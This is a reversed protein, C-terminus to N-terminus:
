VATPVQWRRRSALESPAGDVGRLPNPIMSLYVTEPDPKRYKPRYIEYDLYLTDIDMLAAAIHLTAAMPKTGGTVDVGLRDTPAFCKEVARSFVRHLEDLAHKSFTECIIREPAVGCHRRVAAVLASTEETHLLILTKPECLRAALITPDPSYGLLSILGDYRGQYPDNPFQEIFRSRMKPVLHPVLKECFFELADLGLEDKANEVRRWWEVQLAQFDEAANQMSEQYGSVARM